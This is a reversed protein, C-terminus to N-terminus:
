KTLELIGISLWPFYTVLLVVGALILLFPVVDRAVRPLPKKFTFSALFLNMGVPPTLYGLQLNTLFIVGLHVPDVDFTAAIPLILPVVVMLASFIDMMCGAIILAGNLALLFVWRSRLHEEAWEAAAMPVQADVLYSTLGMAVGLIILVGGILTACRTFVGALERLKVDRHVVAVVFLVYFVLIAAAEVLTCFGGFILTLALVPIMVEWKAEWFAAAAERPQFPIRASKKRRGEWVCVLCFPLVLLTGPVIGAVFMDTIPVRAVVGYLIVVLSPPLLLGLSGTSTLLGVSFNEPFGDKLLVPLLLGGLALITVGSAGTFTTFFACLLTAAVATGGPLFGFFARFLRVLRGSSKGEALLIGVLTFIPITPLVPSVVIRYTEAPIAAITVGEGRFLLLAAAGLLVFIPAGAAAAVASVLFGAAVMTGSFEEPIGLLIVGGVVAPFLLMRAVFKLPSGSLFRLAMVAFVVAMVAEAAWVPLWSGIQSPNGVDLLGFPELWSLLPSPLLTAVSEPLGPAESVVLEVTAAALAVCVLSSFLAQFVEAAPRLPEPLWKGDPVIRLHEGGRSAAMAGLFGVWLTLHRLYNAADPIGASFYRRGFFEVTPIVAMLLLSIGLVADEGGRLWKRVGVAERDSGADEGEKM